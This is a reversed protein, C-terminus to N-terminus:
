MGDGILGPARFADAFPRSTMVPRPEAVTLIAPRAEPTRLAHGQVTARRAGETSAPRRISIFVAEPMPVM